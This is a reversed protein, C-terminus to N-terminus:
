GQYQRDASWNSKGIFNDTWTLGNTIRYAFSTSYYNAGSTAANKSIVCTTGNLTITYRAFSNETIGNTYTCRYGTSGNWVEVMLDSTTGVRSVVLNDNQQGSESFDIIREFNDKANGFTAEFDITIGSSNFQTTSINGLDIYYHM